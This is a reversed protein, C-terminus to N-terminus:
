GPRALIALFGAAPDCGPRPREVERVGGPPQYLTSLCREIQFGARSLLGSLEELSYFTAQSYFPHGRHGEALYHKGWRSERPVLGLVLRGNERLVRAIERLVPAPEPLFCITVILFATGFSADPFPLEEGRGPLVTLGRKRALELLRESPDIGVDIGLASAFRGSGVGVELWPRPLGRALERLASLETQFILRGEDEEFWADYRQALRDFPSPGKL